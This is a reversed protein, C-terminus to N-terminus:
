VVSKRDVFSGYRPWKLGALDDVRATFGCILPFITSDHGVFLQMRVPSDGALAARQGRLIDAIFRGIGLSAAEPSAYFCIWQWENMRTLEEALAATLANPLPRGHRQRCIIVERIRTLSVRSEAPLQFARSLEAHLAAPGGDRVYPMPVERAAADALEYIRPCAARTDVPPLMTEDALRRSHILIPPAGLSRSAPPYLGQLLCQATQITRRYCTSRVALLTADANPPLLTGVYQRRMAEGRAVTEGKGLVTLQGWPLSPEYETGMASPSDSAAPFQAALSDIDGQALIRTAWFEKEDAPCAGGLKPTM